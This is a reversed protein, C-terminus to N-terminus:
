VNKDGVFRFYNLRGWGANKLSQVNQYVVGSGQLCHLIGGGDVNLWIGVHVPHRNHAMLAVDGEIPTITDVWRAREPHDRFERACSIVGYNEPAIIPLERNFHKKQVYRVLGWCDFSGSGSAGAVWPRGIYNQAWHTM